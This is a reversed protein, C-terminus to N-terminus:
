YLVCFGHFLSCNICLFLYVPSRLFQNLTLSRASKTHNIFLLNYSVNITSAKIKLFINTDCFATLPPLSFKLKHLEM